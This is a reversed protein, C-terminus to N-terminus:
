SRGKAFAVPKEPRPVSKWFPYTVSFRMGGEPNRFADITGGHAGVITKCISLGLGMGGSKTSYFAEFVRPIEADSMGVGFDQVELVAAGDRVFTRLIVRRSAAQQEQVADFANMLLNLVVQQFQIRDALVPSVESSVLIDLRIRRGIANGVVLKGVEHVASNIDIPEFHTSGKKLLTRLRQVVDGARQNDARIESLAERLDDVPMPQMMALRLAAETNAMVATLPQNIEHAISGTLADLVTVRGLHLLEDRLM